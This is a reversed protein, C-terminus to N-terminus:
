MRVTYVVNVGWELGGVVIEPNMYTPNAAGTPIMSSTYDEHSGSIVTESVFQLPIELGVSSKDNLKYHYAPAIEFTFIPTAGSNSTIQDSFKQTHTTDKNGQQSGTTGDWWQVDTEESHWGLVIAGVGLGLTATGPGANFNAAVRALVPLKSLKYVTNDGTDPHITVLAPMTSAITHDLEWEGPMSAGVSFGVSLMDSVKSMSAGGFTIVGASIDEKKNSNLTPVVAANSHTYNFEGVITSYGVKVEVAHVTAACLLTAATTLLTKRM